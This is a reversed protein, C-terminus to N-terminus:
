FMEKFAGYCAFSAAHIKRRRPTSEVYRSTHSAKLLFHGRSMEFMHVWGYRTSTEVM